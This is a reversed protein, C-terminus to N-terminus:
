RLVNDLYSTYKYSKVLRNVTNIGTRVGAAFKEYGREFPGLPPLALITSGLSDSHYQRPLTADLTIIPGVKNKLM